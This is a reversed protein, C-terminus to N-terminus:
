RNEKNWQRNAALIQRGLESSVIEEVLRASEALTLNRLFAKREREQERRFRLSTERDTMVHRRRRNQSNLSDKTEGKKKNM